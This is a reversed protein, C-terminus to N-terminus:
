FNLWPNITRCDPYIEAFAMLIMIIGMNKYDDHHSSDIIKNIVDLIIHAFIYKNNGNYNFLFPDGEPCILRAIDSTFNAKFYWYLRLYNYIHHLTNLTANYIWLYNTQYGFYEMKQFVIICKNYLDKKYNIKPKNTKQVPLKSTYKKHLDIANKIIHQDIQMRNYPNIANGQNDILAVFSNIDFGYTFNDTDTYSFRQYPEIDILPELTAFDTDNTCKSPSFYIIGHKKIINLIYFKRFHSQLMIVASINNTARNITNLLNILKIKIQMTSTIKIQTINYHNWSKKIKATSIDKLTPNKIIDFHTIIQTSQPLEKQQTSQKPQTSEFIINENQNETILKYKYKQHKKCFNTANHKAFPCQKNIDAKQNKRAYCLAPNIIPKDM